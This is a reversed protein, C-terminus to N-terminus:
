SDFLRLDIHQLRTGLMAGDAMRAFAGSGALLNECPSGVLNTAASNL